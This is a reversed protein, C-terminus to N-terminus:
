NAISVARRERAQRGEKEKRGTKTRRLVNEEAPRPVERGSEPAMKLSFKVTVKCYVAPEGGEGFSCTNRAMGLCLYLM